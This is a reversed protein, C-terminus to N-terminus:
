HSGSEQRSEFVPDLRAWWAEKLHLCVLERCMKFPWDYGLFYIKDQTKM